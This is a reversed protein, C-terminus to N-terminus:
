VHEFVSRIQRFNVKSLLETLFPDVASCMHINKSFARSKTEDVRAFHPAAIHCGFVYLFLSESGFAFDFLVNPISLEM